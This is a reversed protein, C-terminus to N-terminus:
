AARGKQNIRDLVEQIHKPKSHVIGLKEEAYSPRVPLGELTRWVTWLDALFTKVMVRIAMNHRHAKTKDKHKPHHELRHKYDDYIKRYPGGLKLFSPGLVGILKTKLFPNFTIGVTEVVKGERNTYTKPVLHHRKRCRGEEHTVGDEDEYVVVDLGAYAILASISNCREIDIESVLVGALTEGVGRVDILYETWIPERSLEDLIAKKHINEAELQREYSEILALESRSTILQSDSKFNKTIRKVGDTIRKFESRLNNLIQSAEENEEEAESPNLGLKVRFASTIRNGSQIRLKQLEFMSRVSIRIMENRM